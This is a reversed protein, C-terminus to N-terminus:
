ALKKRRAMFGLLGLGAFMMAYTEPEPVPFIPGVSVLMNGYTPSNGFGKWSYDQSGMFIAEIGQIGSTGVNLQSVRTNSSTFIGCAFYANCATGSTNLLANFAMAPQYERESYKFDYVMGFSRFLDTVENYNAYRFSQIWGGAGSLIDNASLGTTETLDLWYLGTRSDYTLLGDGASKLDQSILTAQAMGMTTVAALTAALKTLKM